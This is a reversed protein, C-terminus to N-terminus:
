LIDCATKCAGAGGGKRGRLGQVQAVQRLVRERGDHGEKTAILVHQTHRGHTPAQTGGHGGGVRGEDDLVDSPPGLVPSTGPLGHVICM